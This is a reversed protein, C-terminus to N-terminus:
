RSTQQANPPSLLCEPCEQKKKDKPIHVKYRKALALFQERTIKVATTQSRDIAGNKDFSMQMAYYAVNSSLKKTSKNYEGAAFITLAAKGALGVRPGSTSLGPDDSVYRSQGVV